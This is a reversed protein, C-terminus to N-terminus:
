ASFFLHKISNVENTKSLQVWSSKNKSKGRSSGSLTWTCLMKQFFFLDQNKWSIDFPQQQKPLSKIQLHLYFTQQQQLCVMDFLNLVFTQGIWIDSKKEKWITVYFYNIDHNRSSLIPLDNTYNYHQQM